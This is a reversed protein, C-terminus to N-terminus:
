VPKRRDRRGIWRETATARYLRLEAPPSVDAVTWEGGGQAVSRRSFVEIAAELEDVQRALADMYVGEGTGLPVSSDFIVISLRPRVALNRSHRTDERSVWLFQTYGEPAFWVPSAWPVGDEDATALVMYRAGDIIEQATV